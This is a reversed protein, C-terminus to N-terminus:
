INLLSFFEAITTEVIEKTSKNRVRIKTSGDVCKGCQRSMMGLVFRNNNFLNVMSKQFDYMKFPILGRDVNVVKVYNECFYIPDRACKIREEIQEKTYEISVGASKVRPNASYTKYKSKEM